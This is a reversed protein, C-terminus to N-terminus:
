KKQEIVSARKQLSGIMMEGLVGCAFVCLVLHGYRAYLTQAESIPLAATRAAPQFAPTLTGPIPEGTAQIIASPGTNAVRVLPRRIEVARFITMAYDLYGIRSKGFRQDNAMVALVDGPDGARVLESFHADYCILPMVRFGQEMQFIVKDAGAQLDSRVPALGALLRYAWSRPRAELFPILARKRYLPPSPEHPLAMRAANYCGEDQCDVCQYLFSVGTEKAVAALKRFTLASEACSAGVPSEPFIALDIRSTKLAQRTMELASVVETRNDRILGVENVGRPLNPQILAATLTPATMDSAESRFAALRLEGYGGALVFMLAVYGLERFPRRRAWLLRIIEAMLFNILLLVLNVLPVGGLDALQIAVPFGHLMLGPTVPFMTPAVAMAAVWLLSGRCARRMGTAKSIAAHWGVVAFPLLYPLFFVGTLFGARMPGVNLTHAATYIGDWTCPM